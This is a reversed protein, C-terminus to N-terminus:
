FIFEFLIFRSEAITIAENSNISPNVKLKNEKWKMYRTDAKELHKQWLRNVVFLDTVFEVLIEKKL